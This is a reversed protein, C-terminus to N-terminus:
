NAQRWRRVGLREREVELRRALRNGVQETVWDIDIGMSAGPATGSLSQVPPSCVANQVPAIAQAQSVPAGPWSNATADASDAKRWLLASGFATTQLRSAAQQPTVAPLSKRLILDSSPRGGQARAGAPNVAATVSDGTQRVGTGINDMAAPQVVSKSGGGPAADIKRWLIPINPKAPTLHESSSTSRGTILAGAAVAGSTNANETARQSEGTSRVHLRGVSKAISEVGSAHAAISTAASDNAPKRQLVGIGSNTPAAARAIARSGGSRDVTASLKAVFDSTQLVGPARRVPLSNEGGTTESASTAAAPATESDAPAASRDVRALYLGQASPTGPIARRYLRELSRTRSPSSLRDHLRHIRSRDLVGPAALRDVALRQVLPSIDPTESM